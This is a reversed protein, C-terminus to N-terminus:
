SQSLVDGFLVSDRNFIPEVGLSQASIPNSPCIPTAETTNPRKNKFGPCPIPRASNGTEIQKGGDAELDVLLLRANLVSMHLMIMVIIVKM